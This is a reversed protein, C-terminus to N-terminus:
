NGEEYNPFQLTFSGTDPDIMYATRRRQIEKAYMPDLDRFERYLDNTMIMLDKEIARQIIFKDDSVGAPAQSAIKKDIYPQLEEFDPVDHRLGAGVIITVDEFGYKDKLDHYAQLLQKISGEGKKHDQRAVNSGDIIIRKIPPTDLILQSEPKEREDFFNSKVNKLNEDYKQLQEKLGLFRLDGDIKKRAKEGSLLYPYVYKWVDDSSIQLSKEKSFERKMNALLFLGVPTNELDDSRKLLDFEKELISEIFSIQIIGAKRLSILNNFLTQIQSKDSAMTVNSPFNERILTDINFIDDFAQFANKLSSIEKALKSNFLDWNISGSKITALTKLTYEKPKYGHKYLFKYIELLEDSELNDTQGELGENIRKLYKQKISPDFVDIAEYVEEVDRKKSPRPLTSLYKDAKQELDPLLEAIGEILIKSVDNKDSNLKNQLRKIQQYSDTNILIAENISKWTGDKIGTGKEVIEKVRELYPERCHLITKKDLDVLDILGLHQLISKYVPANSTAKTDFSPLRDRLREIEKLANKSSKEDKIPGINISDLIKNFNSEDPKLFYKGIAVSLKEAINYESISLLHYIENEFAEVGKTQELVYLPINYGSAEIFYVSAALQNSIISGSNVHAKTRPVFLEVSTPVIISGQDNTKIEFNSDDYLHVIIDPKTKNRKIHDIDATNSNILWKPQSALMEDILLTRDTLSYLRTDGLNHCQKVPIGTFESAAKEYDLLHQKLGGKTVLKDKFIRKLLLNYEEGFPNKIIDLDLGSNKLFVKIEVDVIRRQLDKILPSEVSEGKELLKLSKIHENILKEPIHVPMQNIDFDSEDFLDDLDRTEINRVGVFWEKSHPEYYIPVNFSRPDSVMEGKRYLKQGLETVDYIGSHVPSLVGLTTLYKSVQELFEVKEIGFETGIEKITPKPDDLESLPALLAWELLHMKRKKIAQVDINVEVIDLRSSINKLLFDSRMLIDASSM